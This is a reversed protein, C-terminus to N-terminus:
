AGFQTWFLAVENIGGINNNSNYSVADCRLCTVVSGQSINPESRGVDSNEAGVQLLLTSHKSTSTLCWIWLRRIIKTLLRGFSFLVVVVKILLLKLV